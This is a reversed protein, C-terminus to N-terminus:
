LLYNLSIRVEMTYCSEGSKKQKMFANRALLIEPAIKFTGVSPLCDKKIKELSAVDLGAAKAEDQLQELMKNWEHKIAKRRKPLAKLFAEKLSENSESSM